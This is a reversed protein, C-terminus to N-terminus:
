IVFTPQSQHMEIRRRNWQEQSYSNGWRDATKRNNRKKVTPKWAKPIEIGSDRNISNPHQREHIYFITIENGGKRLKEIRVNQVFFQKVKLIPCSEFYRTVKQKSIREFNFGTPWSNAWSNIRLFLTKLKTQLISSECQALISICSVWLALMGSSVEPLFTWNLSFQIDIM